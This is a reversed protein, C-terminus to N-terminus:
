EARLLGLHSHRKARNGHKVYDHEEEQQKCPLPRSQPDVQGVERRERGRPSISIPENGIEEEFEGTGGLQRTMYIITELGVM